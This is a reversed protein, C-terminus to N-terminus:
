DTLLRPPATTFASGPFVLDLWRCLEERDLFMPRLGVEEGHAVTVTVTYARDSGGKFEGKTVEVRFSQVEAARLGGDHTPLFQAPMLWDSANLEDAPADGESGIDGAADEDYLKQTFPGGGGRGGFTGGWGQTAGGPRLGVGGQPPPSPRPGRSGGRDTDRYHDDRQGPDPPLTM